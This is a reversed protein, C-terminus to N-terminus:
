GGVVRRAIAAVLHWVGGWAAGAGGLVASLRSRSVEALEAHARACERRWDDREAEAAALRAALAQYSERGVHGVHQAPRPAHRAALEALRGAVRPDDRSDPPDDVRERRSWDDAGGWSAVM